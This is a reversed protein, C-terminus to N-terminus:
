APSLTVWYGNLLGNALVPYTQVLMNLTRQTDSIPFAGSIRLDAIAPDYRVFGHRYRTLEAVFDALRMNDAMLMGQTWAGVNRDTATLAGFQQASFETRQGANVIIPATQRNDALVVQVAGELVALHTRASLERVTFRTGLAQMRGQRTSVLFPRSADQATQVLIEGERLHVRRQQSDFRVDIATATNLTIHSGDALTLERREGVRTRYDAAWQQSQALKWSGWGVPMLALLLALKGLAARREPHSPRDLASMALSPPLGGLKSQLLQARAWARDREPTSVKWRQWEARESDSLNNESLRMLWEAAEELVETPLPPEKRLSLM